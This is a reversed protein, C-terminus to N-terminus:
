PPAPRWRRGSGSAARSAHRAPRSPPRSEPWAARGRHPVLNGRRDLLALADLREVRQHGPDLILDAVACAELFHRLGVLQLDDLCGGNGGRARRRSRIELQRGLRLDQELTAELEAGIIVRLHFGDRGSLAIRHQRHGPDDIGGSGGSACTCSRTFASMIASRDDWRALRIASWITALILAPVGIRSASPLAPTASGGTCAILIRRASALWAPPSAAAAPASSIRAAERCPARM